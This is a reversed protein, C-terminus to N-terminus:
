QSPNCPKGCFGSREHALAVVAVKPPRRKTLSRYQKYLRKQTRRSIEVVRTSCDQQRARLSVSVRLSYIYKWTTGILAKRAQPSDTKTIGGYRTTSGSSHQSPILGPYGMLAPASKFRIFDGM